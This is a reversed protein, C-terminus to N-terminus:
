TSNQVQLTPFEGLSSTNLAPTQIQQSSSPIVRPTVRREPDISLSGGRIDDLDQTCKIKRKPANLVSKRIFIEGKYTWVSIRGHIRFMERTFVKTEYMLKRKDPTLQENIYLREIGYSIWYHKDRLQSKLELVDNRIERDKFRVIIGPPGTKSHHQKLRHAISIESIPVIYHLEKCINVIMQKCNENGNMGRCFPVGNFVVHDMRSYTFM